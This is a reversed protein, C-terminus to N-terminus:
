PPRTLAWPARNVISSGEMLSGESDVAVVRPSWCSFPDGHAVETSEGGAAQDSEHDSEDGDRAAAGRDRDGRRAAAARGWRGLREILRDVVRKGGVGGVAD